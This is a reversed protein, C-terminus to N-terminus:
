KANSKKYYVGFMSLTLRRRIAEFTRISAVTAAAAAIVVWDQVLLFPGEGGLSM